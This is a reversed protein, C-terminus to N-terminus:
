AHHCMSTIGAVQSASAHSNSSGLLCLNCHVSIAMVTNLSPSLHFVKRLYFYFFLLILLRSPATPECQLGLLSFRWQVGAQAVSCSETEFLCVFCFCVFLHVFFCWVCHSVLLNFCFLL